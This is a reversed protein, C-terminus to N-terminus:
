RPGASGVGRRRRPQEELPHELVRLGHDNAFAEGWENLLELAPGIHCAENSLTYRVELPRKRVETRQVLGAQTLDRLAVSLMKESIGPIQRRLEAFGTAGTRIAALVITRWRGGLAALAVDVGCM